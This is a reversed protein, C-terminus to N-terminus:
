IVTRQVPDRKSKKNGGQGEAKTDRSYVRM